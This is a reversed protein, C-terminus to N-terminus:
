KQVMKPQKLVTITEHINEFRNVWAHVGHACDRRCQVFSLCMENKILFQIKPTSSYQLASERITKKTKMKSMRPM